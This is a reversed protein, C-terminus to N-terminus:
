PTRSRHLRTVEEDQDYEWSESRARQQTNNSRRDQRRRGRRRRTRQEEQQQTGHRTYTALVLRCEILAERGAVDMRLWFRTVIGADLDIAAVRGPTSGPAFAVTLDHWSPRELPEAAAESRAAQQVRGAM